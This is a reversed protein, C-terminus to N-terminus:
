TRLLLKGDLFDTLSQTWFQYSENSTGQYWILSSLVNEESSPSPRFGLGTFSYFNIKIPFIAQGSFIDFRSENRNVIRVDSTPANESEVNTFIVVM